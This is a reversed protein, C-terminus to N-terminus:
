MCLWLSVPASAASQQLPGPWVSLCSLGAPGHNPPQPTDPQPSIKFASNVVRPCIQHPAHSSSLPQAQCNPPTRARSPAPKLIGDPAPGPGESRTASTSMGLLRAPPDKGSSWGPLSVSVCPSGQALAPAPPLRPFSHLRVPPIDLTTPLVPALLAAEVLTERSGRPVLRAVGQSRPTVTLCSTEATKLRRSPSPTRHVPATTWRSLGGEPAGAGSGEGEWGEKLGLFVPLGAGQQGAESNTWGRLASRGVFGPKVQEPPLHPVPSEQVGPHLASRCATGPRPSRVRRGGPAGEGGATQDACGRGGTQAQGRCIEGCPTMRATLRLSTRGGLRRRGLGGGGAERRCDAPRHAPGPFSGREAQLGPRPGALGADRAPESSSLSSSSSDGRGLRETVRRRTRLRPEGLVQTRPLPRTERPTGM